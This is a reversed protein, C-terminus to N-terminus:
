HGLLNRRVHLLHDIALQRAPMPDRTQLAELLARHGRQYALRREPTLSRKKLMGWEGQARAENMLKFVQTVFGNHAARAICEHFLGDWVEFEEVSTAAEARQCCDELQAFDSATANGIVMEVIAPELALRAQMLEAPSTHWGPTADARPLQAAAPGGAAAQETAYTGSGVTQRVLGQAKLEAIVRRVTTRSIQYRQSFERETPLREGPQWRGSRLQELLHTRFM